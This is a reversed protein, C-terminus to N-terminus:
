ASGSGAPEAWLFEPENHKKRKLIDIVRKYKVWEIFTIIAAYLCLLFLIAFYYGVFGILQGNHLWPRCLLAIALTFVTVFIYGGCESKASSMGSDWSQFKGCYPCQGRMGTALGYRGSAITAKMSPYTKNWFDTECIEKSIEISDYPYSHAQDYPSYTVTRSHHISAHLWGSSKGCFECEFRYQFTASFNFTHEM